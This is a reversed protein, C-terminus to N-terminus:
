TLHRRDCKSHKALVPTSVGPVTNGLTSRCKFEEWGLFGGIVMQNNTAWSDLPGDNLLKVGVESRRLNAQGGSFESKRTWSFYSSPTIGLAKRRDSRSSGKASPSLPRSHMRSAGSRERGSNRTSRSSTSTTFLVLSISRRKWNGRWSHRM